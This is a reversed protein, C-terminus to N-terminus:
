DSALGRLEAIATSSELEDRSMDGGDPASCGQRQGPQKGGPGGAM